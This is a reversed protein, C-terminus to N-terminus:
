ADPVRNKSSPWHSAGSEDLEDSTQIRRCSASGGADLQLSRTNIKQAKNVFSVPSDQIEQVAERLIPVIKQPERKSRKM